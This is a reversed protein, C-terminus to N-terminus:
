EIACRQYFYKKPVKGIPYATTLKGSDILEKRLSRILTYAKDRSVGLLEQVQDVTVYPRDDKSLVKIVGNATAEM